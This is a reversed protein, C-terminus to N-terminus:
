RSKRLCEDFEELEPRCSETPMYLVLNGGHECRGYKIECTVLTAGEDGCGREKQEQWLQRRQYVCAEVSKGECAAVKECLAKFDPPRSSCAVVFVILAYRLQV